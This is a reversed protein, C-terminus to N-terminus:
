VVIAASLVGANSISVAWRSGNPSLLYFSTAGAAPYPSPVVIDINDIPLEGQGPLTIGLKVRRPYDLYIDIVGGSPVFPNAYVTSGTDSTYIPTPSGGDNILTTTGPELLRVTPSQIDGSANVVPLYLHARLTL